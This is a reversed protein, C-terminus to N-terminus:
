AFVLDWRIFLGSEFRVHFDILESQGTPRHSHPSPVAELASRCSQSTLVRRVPVTSWITATSLITKCVVITLSSQGIKSGRLTNPRRDASAPWRLNVTKQFKCELPNNRRFDSRTGLSPSLRIDLSDISKRSHRGEIEPRYRERKGISKQLAM